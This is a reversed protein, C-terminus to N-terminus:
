KDIHVQQEKKFTEIEGQLSQWQKDVEASIKDQPYPVKYSGYASKLKGVLGKVPVTKQYADWDIKPPEPPNAM